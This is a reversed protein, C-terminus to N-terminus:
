PKENIISGAISKVSIIFNNKELSALSINIKFEEEIQSMLSIIVISEVGVSSLDTEYSLSSLDIDPNTKSLNKQIYKLLIKESIEM